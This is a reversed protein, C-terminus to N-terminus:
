NTKTMKTISVIPDAGIVATRYTPAYRPPTLPACNGPRWIVALRPLHSRLATFFGLM